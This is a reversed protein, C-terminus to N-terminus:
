LRPPLRTQDFKKGSIRHTNDMRRREDSSFDKTEIIWNALESKFENIIDSYEDKEILNNVEWPDNELNYFEFAPRPAEFLLKQINTLRGLQKNEYLSRWTPSNSIDAATGHPLDTYSNSILKYKLSRISRIHEDCNHWNRESFVYERGPENTNSLVPLFSKGQMNKPINIGVLELITPALDVVSMLKNFILGPKIGNKWRFILPTKIGADYVTGKERPFPAGNDSFFIILTNDLLERKELEKIYVGIQEDMRMIENYYDALDDRTATDDIFYPPVELKNPDQPKDIINKEYPRHPDTFGVWMFFPQSKSSDLFNDFDNLDKSYFDFQKEGNPGLHAKKLMGSFYKKEKLLTPLLIESEPLPMHLDEAGTSHPYKGTLVSIRSPSCQPTTLFANTAMFGDESLKDINPTSINENGYCGFDRFGADDAIFILINPPTENKNCGIFLFLLSIFCILKGM